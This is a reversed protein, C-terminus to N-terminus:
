IVIKELKECILHLILYHLEQVRATKKSKISIFRDCKKHISNIYNGFMGIVKIKNNKCYNILKLINKSKGSTSLVLVCDGKRYIGAMQKIFLDEFLFDNSIATLITSSETLNYCNYNIRKKSIFKGVLEASFHSLDSSSGGNGALIIKNSKLKLRTIENVLYNCFHDIENLSSLVLNCHEEILKKTEIM